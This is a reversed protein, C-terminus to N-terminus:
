KKIHLYKQDLGDLRLNLIRLEMNVIIENLFNSIIQMNNVSFFQM